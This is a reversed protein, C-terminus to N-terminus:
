KVDDFRVLNYDLGQENYIEFSLKFKTIMENVAIHPSCHFSENYSYLSRIATVGRKNLLFWTDSIHYYNRWFLAAKLLSPQVSYIRFIRLQSLIKRLFQRNPYDAFYSSDGFCFDKGYRLEFSPTIKTDYRLLLIYDFKVNKNIEYSEILNLVENTSYWRSKSRCAYTEVEAASNFRRSLYREYKRKNGISYHSHGHWTFVRQDEVVLSAFELSELGDSHESRWNHGFFQLDQLRSRLLHMSNKVNDLGLEKRQGNIEHWGLNGFFGIALKM